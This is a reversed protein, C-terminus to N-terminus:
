IYRRKVRESIWCLIEYPITGVLKALEEVTIIRNKDKGILTAEDGIKVGKIRSVDAMTQDMCIKGVVRAYNGKILVRAKNTLLHTYGDAYGIALTAIKSKRKTIYKRGYSISRGAEVEKLYVIKAKLSLVPKIDLLRKSKLDPYVGYLILGPRVLNFHSEKHHLIAMSNAAHYFPISIHEKKIKDILTNFRKLQKRTFRKDKEASSLHTFLGEIEIHKLKSISKIEEIASAHWFGIRGMGTDIKLHVKVKKRKKEALKNLIFATKKQTITAILDYNVIRELGRILTNGLILIPTKIKEKKLRMAEDLSAVGLIDVKNELFKSIKVIGHGYANAKVTALVKVKSSILNRIQKLNYDLNSLNIEVWTQVYENDPERM